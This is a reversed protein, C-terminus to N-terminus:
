ELYESLDITYFYGGDKVLSPYDIYIYSRNILDEDIMVVISKEKISRGVAHMNEETGLNAKLLINEEKYESFWLYSRFNLQSNKLKNKCIILYTHRNSSPKSITVEFLNKNGEVRAMEVNIGHEQQNKPAIVVFKSFVASVSFPCTFLLFILIAKKM